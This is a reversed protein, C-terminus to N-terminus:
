FNFQEINEKNFVFPEGLYVNGEGVRIGKLRGFSLSRTAANLRGERLAQAAHVTLYGLDVTNWLILTDIYDEHVYQRCLNPTSLGTLKIDTRGAQKLGEAAGPLAPACIAMIGELRPYKNLANRTEAMAKDREGDSFRIEKLVM